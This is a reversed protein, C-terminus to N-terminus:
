IEESLKGSDLTQGFEFIFNKRVPEFNDSVISFTLRYRGAQLQHPYYDTTSPVVPNFFAMEINRGAKEFLWAADFRRYSQNPAIRVSALRTREWKFETTEWKFNQNSNLDVVEDLYAFCNRADKRHHLNEVKIHFPRSIRGDVQTLRAASDSCISLALANRTQNSWEQNDRKKKILKCVQDPLAARGSPPFRTEGEKMNALVVNLVGGREVGEEQLLMVCDGLGIYSAVALEQNAFLSGRHGGKRFIASLFSFSLSERKFDIFVFYDSEELRKFIVDRLDRLDQVECAAWCYFGLDSENIKRKIAEAIQKEGRKSDQGCSLFIQAKM